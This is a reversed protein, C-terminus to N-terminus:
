DGSKEAIFLTAKIECGEPPSHAFVFHCESTQQFLRLRPSAPFPSSDGTRSAVELKCESFVIQDKLGMNTNKFSVCRESELSLAFLCKPNISM